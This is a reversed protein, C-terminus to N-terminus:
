CIDVTEGPAEEECLIWFLIWNAWETTWTVTFVDHPGKQVFCRLVECMMCGVFFCCSSPSVLTVYFPPLIMSSFFCQAAHRCPDRPQKLWPERLDKQLPSAQASTPKSPRPRLSGLYPFCCTNAGSELTSLLVQPCFDRLSWSFTVVVCNYTVDDGALSLTRLPWREHLKRGKYQLM